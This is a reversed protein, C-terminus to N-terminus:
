ETADQATLRDWAPHRTRSVTTLISQVEECWNHHWGDPRNRQHHAGASYGYRQWGQTIRTMQVKAQTKRSRQMGSKCLSCRQKHQCERVNHGQWGCKFSVVAASETQKSPSAGEHCQGWLSDREDKKHREPVTIKDQIWCLENGYWETLCHITPFNWAIRKFVKSVLLGDSLTEAAKRLAM